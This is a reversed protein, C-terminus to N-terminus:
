RNYKVENKSVLESKSLVLAPIDGIELTDAFSGAIVELPTLDIM